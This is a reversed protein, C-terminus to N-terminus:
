TDVVIDFNFEIFIGDSNDFLIRFLVLEFPLGSTSYFSLVSVKRQTPQQERKSKNKMETVYFATPSISM